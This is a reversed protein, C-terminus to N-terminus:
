TLTEETKWNNKKRKTQLPIIEFSEMRRSSFIVNLSSLISSYLSFQSKCKCLPRKGEAKGVLIRYVGRRERISAVHGGM